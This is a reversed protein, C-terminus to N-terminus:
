GGERKQEFMPIRFLKARELMLKGLVRDLLGQPLHNGLAEVLRDAENNYFAAYEDLTECEPVAQDFVITLSEIPFSESWGRAKCIQITKM